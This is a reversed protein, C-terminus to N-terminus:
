PNLFDMLIEYNQNLIVTEEHSGGSDPHFIRALKKRATNLTEENLTQDFSFGNEAFFTFASEIHDPLKPANAKQKQNNKQLKINKARLKQKQYQIKRYDAQKEKYADQKPNAKSLIEINTKSSLFDLSSQEAALLVAWIHKCLQGKVFVSCTCNALITDSEISNSTLQIRVAAAGKIYSQISTDSKNSLVVAGKAVYDAGSRKAEPKFFHEFTKQM